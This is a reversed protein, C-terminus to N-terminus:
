GRFIQNSEGHFRADRAHLETIVKGLEAPGQEKAWMVADFGARFAADNLYRAGLDGNGVKLASAKDVGFRIANEAIKMGEDARVQLLPVAGKQAILATQLAQWPASARGGAYAEPRRGEQQKRYGEPLGALTEVIAIHATDQLLAEHQKDGREWAEPLTTITEKIEIAAGVLPMFTSAAGLLHELGKEAFLEAVEYGTAAAGPGTTIATHLPDAWPRQEEKVERFTADHGHVDIHEDKRIKGTAQAAGNLLTETSAKKELEAREDHTLDLGYRKENMNPLTIDAM